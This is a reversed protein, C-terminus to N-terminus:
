NTRLRQLTLTLLDAAELSTVRVQVHFVLVRRRRRRRLLRALDLQRRETRLRGREPERLRLTGERYLPNCRLKVGVAVHDGGERVLRNAQDGVNHLRAM